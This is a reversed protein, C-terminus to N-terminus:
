KRVVEFEFSCERDELESIKSFLRKKARIVNIKPVHVKLQHIFEPNNKLLDLLEKDRSKIKNEIDNM